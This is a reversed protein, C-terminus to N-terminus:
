KKILWDYINIIQVGNSSFENIDSNTLVIKKFSDHTIFDTVERKFINEDNLSDCVQYYVIENNSKCVFDIEKGYRTILTYM